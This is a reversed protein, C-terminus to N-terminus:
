GGYINVKRSLKGYAIKILVSIILIWFINLSLAYLLNEWSFAYVLRITLYYFSYFPTFKAIAVFWDPYITLPFIAGGFIFALRDIVLILTRTSNFWIACLGVVSKIYINILCSLYCMIIIIPLFELAFPTGGTILYVTLSGITILYVFLVSMSGAAESLRMLFFSVPKNLYYAMTGTKVDETLIRDVRPPSLIIIEGLLLYWIFSTNLTNGEQSGIVVWLQNYTLLLLLLLIVLGIIM